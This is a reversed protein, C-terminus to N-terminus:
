DENQDNNNELLGYHASLLPNLEALNDVLVSVEFLGNNMLMSFETNFHNFINTIIEKSVIGNNTIVELIDSRIGNYIEVSYKTFESSLLCYLTNSNICKQRADDNELYSYNNVIQFLDYLYTSIPKIEFQINYNGMFDRINYLVINIMNIIANMFKWCVYEKSANQISRSISNIMPYNNNKNNYVFGYYNELSLMYDNDIIADSPVSVTTWDTTYIYPSTFHLVAKPTELEKINAEINNEKFAKIIDKFQEPTIKNDKKM